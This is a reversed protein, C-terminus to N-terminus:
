LQEKQKLEAALERVLYAASDQKLESLINGKLYYVDSMLLSEKNYLRLTLLGSHELILQDITKLSSDLQSDKFQNLAVRYLMLYNSSDLDYAIRYWEISQNYAGTNAYCWGLNNAIEIKTAIQTLPIHLLYELHCKAKEYEADRVLGFTYRYYGAITLAVLGAFAVLSFVIYVMVKNM